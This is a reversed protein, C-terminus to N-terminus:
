CTAECTGICDSGSAGQSCSATCSGTLCYYVAPNGPVQCTLNAGSIKCDFDSCIGACSKTCTRMGKATCTSPASTQWPKPPKPPGAPPDAGLKPISHSSFTKITEELTNFGSSPELLQKSNRATAVALTAVILLASSTKM